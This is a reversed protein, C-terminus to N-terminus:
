GLHVYEIQCRGTAVGHGIHAAGNTVSRIPLPPLTVCAQTL